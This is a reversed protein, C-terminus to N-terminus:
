FVCVYRMQRSSYHLSLIEFVPWYYYYYEGPEAYIKINYYYNLSIIVLSILNNYGCIDLVCVLVFIFSDIDYNNFYYLGQHELVVIVRSSHM